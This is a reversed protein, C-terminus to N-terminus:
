PSRRFEAHCRCNIVNHPSGSPDAPAMLAEGAVLFPQSVLVTQGQARRHESRTADDRKADWRKYLKGLREQARLAAALGGFGFARTVETVAVTRARSPWNETGTWTLLADVRAAQEDVTGGKALEAIVMRYVEGPTRVMLNRTRQLQDELISSSRDYPLEWGHRAVERLDRILREVRSDWIHTAVWIGAPDPPLRWRSFPMMVAARVAALWLKYAAEMAAGVGREAAALFTRIPPFSAM